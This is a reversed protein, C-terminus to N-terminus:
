IIGKQSQEMAALSFIIPVYAICVDLYSVMMIELLLESIVLGLCLPAIVIYHKHKRFYTACKIFPIYYILTGILGFNCLMEVYNCHSYEYGFSTMYYFYQMGGGLIPHDWFLKLGERIMQNREDTSHSVRVSTGLFLQTIATEIRYGIIEYFYPVNFVLYWLIISIFLGIIWKSVKGKNYIFYIVLDIILIFMTKKSGTLLMFIGSVILAVLVIKNKRLCYISMLFLSCIGLAVGVSNVNGALSSGIRVTGSIISAGENIIILGLSVITTVVFIISLSKCYEKEELINEFGIYLAVNQFYTFLIRDDNFSGKRLFCCGYLMILFYLLSLWVVGYKVKIKMKNTVLSFGILIASAVFCMFSYITITDIKYFCISAILLMSISVISINKKMISHKM